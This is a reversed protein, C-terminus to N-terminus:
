IIVFRVLNARFDALTIVRDPSDSLWVKLQPDIWVNWAHDDTWLYGFAPPLGAFEGVRGRTLMDACAMIALNDCDNVEPRYFTGSDRMSKFGQQKTILASAHDSIFVNHPHDRMWPAFARTIIDHLVEGTTQPQTPKPRPKLFSFM